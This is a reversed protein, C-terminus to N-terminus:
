LNIVTLELIFKKIMMNDFQLYKKLFLMRYFLKM